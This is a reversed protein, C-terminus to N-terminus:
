ELPDEEGLSTSSDRVVLLTIAGLGFLFASAALRTAAHYMYLYTWATFSLVIAKGLLAQKGFVRGLTILLLILLATVGFLGHEALLRTYETHTASEKFFIAHYYRSQGIGVGFIPHEKFALLDGKIILDRGTPDFDQFRASLEGGTLDNLAPFFITFGIILLVITVMFVAKQRPQRILYFAAVAMSGIATWVGGRSFSLAAQGLLWIVIGVMIIRLFNNERDIFIYLFAALAGLGLISSFQNEGIGGTIVRSTSMGIKVEVITLTMFSALFAIGVVPAIIAVLIRKMQELDLSITRFYVTAVVLLVPGSLQFAVVERDFNPMLLIAPLLLLLYFFPRKDAHPISHHKLLILILILIVAYKGYEWFVLSETGRWILEFGVIYSAVYIARDPTDDTLAWVIGLLLVLLAHATSLYVNERFIVVLIIQLLIFFVVKSSYSGILGRVPNVQLIAEQDFDHTKKNQYDM